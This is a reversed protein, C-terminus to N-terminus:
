IVGGSPRPASIIRKSWDGRRRALKQGKGLKDLVVGSPKIYNAGIIDTMFQDVAAQIEPQTWNRDCLDFEDTLGAVIGWENNNVNAPPAIHFLRIFERPTMGGDPSWTGQKNVYYWLQNARVILTGSDGLAIKGFALGPMSGHSSAQSQM